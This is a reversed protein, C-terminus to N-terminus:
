FSPYMLQNLHNKLLFVTSVFIHVARKCYKDGNGMRILLSFTKHFMLRSDPLGYDVEADEPQKVDENSESSNKTTKPPLVPRSCLSMFRNCSEVQLNIM